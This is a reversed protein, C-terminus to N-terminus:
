PVIIQYAVQNNVVLHLSGGVSFHPVNAMQLTEQNVGQVSSILCASSVLNLPSLFPDKVFLVVLHHRSCLESSYAPQLKKLFATELLDSHAFL